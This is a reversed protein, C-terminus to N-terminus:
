VRHFHTQQRAGERWVEDRQGAAVPLSSDPAELLMDGAIAQGALLGQASRDFRFSGVHHPVWLGEDTEVGIEGLIDASRVRLVAEGREFRLRVRLDDLQKVTVDTDPGLRLTSSGFELTAGGARDTTIRDGTSLPRGPEAAIWSGDAGVTRVDGAVQALRGVRGPLDDQAFAAGAAVALALALVVGARRRRWHATSRHLMPVVAAPDPLSRLTM